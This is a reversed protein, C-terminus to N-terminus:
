EISYYIGVDVKMRIAIDQEKCCLVKFKWMETYM